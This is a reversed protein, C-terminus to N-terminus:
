ELEDGSLPPGSCTERWADLELRKHLSSLGLRRSTACFEAAPVAYEAHFVPKGADLFPRLLDCEAFEACEENVAFDFEGVLEPVQPLDNKLGVALGREHALRAILRNYALQDEATLPFGTHETYGELLDPEVADFGKAVALDMRAAMIPELVDVRRIDLWREGPWGNPEGLVEAPFADADPRFEEWAGANLYAIVRRGRGHLAAVQEASTEHLDVDYVDAEVSLDLEGSLQWQWSLGATPRWWGESPRGAGSSEGAGPSRGAEPPEPSGGTCAALLALAM